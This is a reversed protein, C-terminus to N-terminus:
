RCKLNRMWFVLPVSYAISEDAKDLGIQNLELKKNMPQFRGDTQSYVVSLHSCNAADRECLTSDFRSLLALKLDRWNM